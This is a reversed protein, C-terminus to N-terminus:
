GRPGAERGMWGTWRGPLRDGRVAGEGDVEIGEDSLLSRWRGRWAAPLRVGEDQPSAAQGGLRVVVLARERGARRGLWLTRDSAHLPEVTGRRLARTAQRAAIRARLEALLEEDWREPRDWPITGRNAPDHGGELGLEDGYYITPAGPLALLLGYAQRVAARDGGLLTRVRATDHSGLLTMHACRTAEPADLLRALEDAFARPARREIRGLGGRAAQEQDIERGVLGLIARALPYLMTGDFPGDGVWRDPAGWIEGVLWADARAARCRRRFERWFSADDIEEPVDLRWGDAGEELWRTAVDWLFARVAPTAVNFKPLAPLDWWSRYRHEGSADYARLPFGEIHWWDLYPSAPGNELVDHFQLLGRSAHNFVGDLVLRMGREHLEDRLRAFAADGGLLPDVRHYDHTHYRHNAGSQFIPTLYVGTVGLEALHDLREAVGLLDGGKYGHVTPPDDWPELHSPKALADSRAFRDPVVQYLVADAIWEPPAGESM